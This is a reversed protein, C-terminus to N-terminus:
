RAPYGAPPAPSPARLDAPLGTRLDAEFEDIVAPDPSLETLWSDGLARRDGPAMGAIRDFDAADDIIFYGMMELVGANRKQIPNGAGTTNIRGRHRPIFVASLREGDSTVFINQTHNGITIGNGYFRDEGDNRARWRAAVAEAVRVLDAPLGPEASRILYAPAPWPEIRRVEVDRLRVLPRGASSATGAEGAASAYPLPLDAIRFFQYHQHYISNGAWHNCVGAVPAPPPDAHAGLRFGDIDENIVYVLRMLDSFSYAQPEMTLAAGGDQPFDWALFHCVDEPDGVPAFTFGLQYDRVTALDAQGPRAAPRAHVSHITAERPNLAGVSCYNCASRYRLAAVVQERVAPRDLRGPLEIAAADLPRHEVRLYVNGGDRAIRRAAAPDRFRIQDGDLAAPVLIGQGALRDLIEAIDEGTLGVAGPDPFSLRCVLGDEHYVLGAPDADPNMIGRRALEPKDGRFQRVPVHVFRYRCGDGAPLVRAGPHAARPTGAPRAQDAPYGAGAPEAQSPIHGSRLGQQWAVLVAVGLGDTGAIRRLEADVRPTGTMSIVERYRRHARITEEVTAM